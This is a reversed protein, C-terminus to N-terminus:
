SDRQATCVFAGNTADCYSGAACEGDPCAQGVKPFAVCKGPATRTVDDAAPLCFLGDDTYCAGNPSGVTSTVACEPYKGAGSCVIICASGVKLHPLQSSESCVGNYCAESACEIASQCTGGAPTTGVFVAECGSLLGLSPAKCTALTQKLVALCRGAAAADYRVPFTAELMAVRSFYDTLNSKCEAPAYNLSAQNCCPELSDCYAQAFTQPFQDLSVPSQETRASCGLACLGLVTTGLGIAAALGRRM